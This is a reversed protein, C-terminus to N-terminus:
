IMQLVLIRKTTFWDSQNNGIKGCLAKKYGKFNFSTQDGCYCQTKKHFKYICISSWDNGFLFLRENSKHFIEFAKDSKSVDFKMM